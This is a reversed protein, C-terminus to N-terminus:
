GLSANSFERPEHASKTRRFVGVHAPFKVCAALKEHLEQVSRRSVRPNSFAKLLPEEARNYHTGRVDGVWLLELPQLMDQLINKGNGGNIM